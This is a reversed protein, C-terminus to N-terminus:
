DESHEIYIRTRYYFRDSGILEYTLVYMGTIMILILIDILGKNTILM